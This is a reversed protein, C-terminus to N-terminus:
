KTQSIEAMMVSEVSRYYANASRVADDTFKSVSEHKDSLEQLTLFDNKVVGISEGFLRDDM